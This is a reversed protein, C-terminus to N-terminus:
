VLGKQACFFLLVQIGHNQAPSPGKKRQEGLYNNESMLLREVWMMMVAVHHDRLRGKPLEVPSIKTQDDSSSVQTFLKVAETFHRSQELYM